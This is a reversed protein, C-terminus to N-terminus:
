HPAPAPASNWSWRSTKPKRQRWRLDTVANPGQKAFTARLALVTPRSVQLQNAASASAVGERALLVIPFRLTVKQLTNGNRVLRELERKQEAIMALPAAATLLRVM